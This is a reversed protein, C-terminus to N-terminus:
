AGTRGAGRAVPVANCRDRRQGRAGSTSGCCPGFAAAFRAVEVVPMELRRTRDISSRCAGSLNFKPPRRRSPPRARSTAEAAELAQSGNWSSHRPHWRARHTPWPGYRRPGRWSRPLFLRRPEALEHIRFLPGPSPPRQDQARLWLPNRLVEESRRYTGVSGPRESM